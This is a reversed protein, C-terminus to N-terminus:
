KKANEKVEKNLNIDTDSNTEFYYKDDICIGFGKHIRSSKKKGANIIKEAAKAPMTGQVLDNGACMLYKVNGNESKLKM